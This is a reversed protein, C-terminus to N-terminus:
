NVKTRDQCHCGCELDDCPTHDSPRGELRARFHPHCWACVRRAGLAKALQDRPDLPNRKTM